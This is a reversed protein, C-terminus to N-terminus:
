NCSCLLMCILTRIVLELLSTYPADNEDLTEPEQELEGDAVSLYELVPMYKRSTGGQGVSFMLM